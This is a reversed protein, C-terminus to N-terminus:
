SMIFKTQLVFNLMSVRLPMILATISSIDSARLCLMHHMWDSLAQTNIMDCYRTSVSLRPHLLTGLLPISRVLGDPGGAGHLHPSSPLPCRGNPFVFHLWAPSLLMPYPFIACEWHLSPFFLHESSPQRQARPGPLKGCQLASCVGAEQCGPLWWQSANQRRVSRSESPSSPWWSGSIFWCAASNELLISHMKGWMLHNKLDM